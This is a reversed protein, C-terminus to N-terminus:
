LKSVLAPTDEDFIAICRVEISERDKADVPTTPDHFASHLTFTAKSGGCLTGASDWTKLLLAEDQVMQPYYYWRHNSSTRSFYNEGVRDAYHIEFVCLDDNEVSQADCCALPFAEVPEPRINRWLNVIAYRGKKAKAVDDKSLLPTDGLQQRLTDNLSPPNGLQDLRDPGSTLTYDGHVLSAPGQVASGGNIQKGSKQGGASRVNHDFAKVVSAGTACKVLEACERYYKGVTAEFTYFDDYTLATPSKRLEFGNRDLSFSGLRANRICMETSTWQAGHIGQDSGAADRMTKIKGNRVLTPEVLSQQYNMVGQVSELRGQTNYKGGVHSSSAAVPWGNDQVAIGAM